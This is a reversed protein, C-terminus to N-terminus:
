KGILANKIEVDSPRMANVPRYDKPMAKAAQYAPTAMRKAALGSLTTGAAIGTAL